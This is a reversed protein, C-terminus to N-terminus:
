FSIERRKLTLLQLRVLQNESDNEETLIHVNGMNALILAVLLFRSRDYDNPLESLMKTFDLESGIEGGFRELLEDGYAGTCFDRHLHEQELVETMRMEWKQLHESFTSTAQESATWYKRLHFAIIEDYDMQSIPRPPLDDANLNGEAFITDDYFNNKTALSKARKRQVTNLHDFGAYLNQMRGISNELDEVELLDGLNQHESQEFEDDWVEDQPLNIIEEAVLEDMPDDFDDIVEDNQAEGNPAVFDENQEAQGEGDTQEEDSGVHHELVPDMERNQMVRRMAREAREANQYEKRRRKKLESRRKEEEHILPNLVLVAQDAIFSNFLGLTYARKKLQHRFIRSEIYCKITAVNPVGKERCDREIRRNRAKIQKVASMACNDKRRFPRSQEAVTESPDLFELSSIDPPPAEGEENDTAPEPTTEHESLELFDRPSPPVLTSDNDFMENEFDIQPQQTLAPTPGDENMEEDVLGDHRQLALESNMEIACMENGINSNPRLQTPALTDTGRREIEQQDTQRHMTETTSKSACSLADNFDDETQEMLPELGGFNVDNKQSNIVLQSFKNVIAINKFDLLAISGYVHCSNLKFDEMKGFVETPNTRTCLSVNRKEFDTLPFFAIPVVPLLSTRRQSVILRDLLHGLSAYNIQNAKPQRKERGEGADDANANEDMEEGTAEAGEELPDDKRRKGKQQQQHHINEDERLQDFFNQAKQLVYDVKRAYVTTTGHILLAAEAFNFVKHRRYEDDPAEADIRKTEAVVKRIYDELTKAIDLDWNAALDKVPQILFKYREGAGEFEAMDIEAM